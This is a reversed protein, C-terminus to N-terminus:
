ASGGSQTVVNVVLVATILLLISLVFSIVNLIKLLKKNGFVVTGGADSIQYCSYKWIGVSLLIGCMLLIVFLAIYDKIIEIETMGVVIIIFALFYVDVFVELWRHWLKAGEENKYILQKSIVLLFIGALSTIVAM